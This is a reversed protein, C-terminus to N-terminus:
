LLIQHVTLENLFLDIFETLKKSSLHFIDDRQLEGTKIM